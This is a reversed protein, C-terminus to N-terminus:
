RGGGLRQLSMQDVQEKIQKIDKEKLEKIAANLTEVEDVERKRLWETFCFLSAASFFVLTTPLSPSIFCLVLSAILLTILLAQKLDM